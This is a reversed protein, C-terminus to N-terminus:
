VVEVKKAGLIRALRRAAYFLPRSFSRGTKKGFRMIRAAPPIFREDTVCIYAEGALVTLRNLAAANKRSYKCGDLNIVIARDTDGATKELYTVLRMEAPCMRKLKKNPSLGLERIHDTTVKKDCLARRYRIYEYVTFSGFPPEGLAFYNKGDASACFLVEVNDLVVVGSASGFYARKQRASGVCYTVM